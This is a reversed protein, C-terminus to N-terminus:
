SDFAPYIRQTLLPVIHSAYSVGDVEQREVGGKLHQHRRQQCVQDTKPRARQLLLAYPLWRLSILLQLYCPCQKM